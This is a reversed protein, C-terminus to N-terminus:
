LETCRTQVTSRGCDKRSNVLSIRDVEIDEYSVIAGDVGSTIDKGIDPWSEEAVSPVSMGRFM